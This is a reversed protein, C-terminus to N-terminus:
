KCIIPLPRTIEPRQLFGLVAGSPTGRGLEDAPAPTAAQAGGPLLSTVSQALLSQAMLGYLPISVVFVLLALKKM